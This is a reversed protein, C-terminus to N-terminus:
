SLPIQISAVVQNSIEELSFNARGKYLLALRQKINKLGLQTSKSDISLKGSNCVEILLQHEQEKINVKIIGGNKPNSIGHKVANEILMQIIMPPIKVVTTNVLINKEFELRNEMKIKSIAVYNDVMELEDELAIANVDNKTLSYRLMDSLRTIMERSKHTDEIILGRINNLSNFMFHPNIQGKLTNLQSEKLNAELNLKKLQVRKLQHYINITIYVFLWIFFLTAFFPINYLKIYFLSLDSEKFVGSNLLQDIGILIPWVLVSYLIQSGIFVATLRLIDKRNVRQFDIFKDIFLAILYSTIFALVACSFGELIMYQIRTNVENGSDLNRYVKLTTLTFFFLVIWGVFSSLIYFKNKTLKM